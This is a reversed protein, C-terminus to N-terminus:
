IGKDADIKPGEIKHLKRAMLFAARGGGFVGLPVYTYPSTIVKHFIGVTEILMAGDARPIKTPNRNRVFKPMSSLM